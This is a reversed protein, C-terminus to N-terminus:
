VVRIHPNFFKPTAVISIILLCQGSPIDISAIPITTKNLADLISCFPDRVAGKFSFGFIADVVVNYAEDILAAQLAVEHYISLIDVSCLDTVVSNWFFTIKCCSCGCKAQRRLVVGWADRDPLPDGDEPVSHDPRSVSAQQAEQPLPHDTWIGALSGFTQGSFHPALTCLCRRCECLAESTTRLSPRGWRQQGPRLDCACLAHGEQPLDTPIGAPCFLSFIKLHFFQNTPTITTQKNKKLDWEPSPQPVVSDLWSWWSTWVSATSASSSRM